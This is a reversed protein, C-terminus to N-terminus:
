YNRGVLYSVLGYLIPQYEKEIKIISEKSVTALRQIEKEAYLKAGTEEFVKRVIELDEEDANKIGYHQDLLKRHQENANRYAVGLLLTQKNERIDSLVPKGLVEESSYIGLLDDKIQFAIGLPIAIEKLVSILEDNADGCIAGLMFPGVLTYWATKYEYIQLVINEYEAYDNAISIRAFPLMTDMLEGECTTTYVQSCLQYIRSLVSADVSCKALIQYSLFFGYDGICLARSIGYHEADVDSQLIGIDKASEVHITTKKRRMESKDIVDDHILISTQFLEYSAAAPLYNHFKGRSAILEGLKILAGRIRKGGENQASLDKLAERVFPKELVTVSYEKMYDRFFGEIECKTDKLFDLFVLYHYVESIVEDSVSASGILGADASHLIKDSIAINGQLESLGSIFFTDKCEMCCQKYLERSNSSNADGIVIMTDMSQSLKKAKDERVKTVSCLTDYVECLPNAKLIKSVIKEWINKGCTTQAVVCVKGSVDLNNLDSENEIVFATDPACWGMIGIVEPHKEKGIIIVKYESFSKQEVIKHIKQIKACTCDVVEIKKKGLEEYVARPVGHARIIVVSNEPISYVDEVVTFGKETFKQIVLDNNVLNGLMIVQKKGLKDEQKWATNVANRVGFCFGSEQLKHIM